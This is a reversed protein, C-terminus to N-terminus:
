INELKNLIKSIIYKSGLYILKNIQGLRLHGVVQSLRIASPQAPKQEAIGNYALDQGLNMIVNGIECGFHADSGATVSKGFNIALSAANLNQEKTSRANYIEIVDVERAVELVALQSRYPHPLVVIGGQHKIETIVDRWHRTKIEEVLHLGIIDGTDTTIEAGVIVRVGISKEFEKAKLGGKITNHDTIAVVNIGKKRALLLIKRPSLLSDVSYYSHIHLDANKM